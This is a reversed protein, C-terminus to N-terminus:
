ETEVAKFEEALLEQAGAVVVKENAALGHRVFWGKEVPRELEVEKHAFTEEGTQVYLYIEGEHRVLAARPVLVGIQTEGPVELWGILATGPPLPNAELLFLFGQGQTQPDAVPAAGLYKVPLPHEEGAVPAVRGGQPPGGLSQSLPLDIRALSQKMAILSEVLAQFNPQASAAPGLTLALKAKAAEFLIQDKKMAAEATELARTSVNQDQAYLQKLREYEKRSVELSASASLQDVLLTAFPTPDLVQGYGKEELRLQAPELAATKLGMREQTAKDIKLFTEGNAGHQVRAEEKHEDEKKEEHGGQRLFTWTLVVGIILGALIAWLTRM